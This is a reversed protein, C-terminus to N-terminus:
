IGKKVYEDFYDFMTKNTVVNEIKKLLICTEYDEQQECYALLTYYTDCPIELVKNNGKKIRNLIQTEFIDIEIVM